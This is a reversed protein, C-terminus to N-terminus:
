APALRLRAGIADLILAHAQDVIDDISPTRAYMAMARGLVENRTPLHPLHLNALINAARHQTESLKERLASLSSGDLAAGVAGLPTGSDPAAAVNSLRASGITASAGCCRSDIRRAHTAASSAIAAQSPAAATRLASSATSSAAVVTDARCRALLSTTNAAASHLAPTGKIAGVAVPEVAEVIGDTM